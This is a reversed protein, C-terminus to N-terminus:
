TKNGDSERIKLWEFLERSQEPTYFSSFFNISIIMQSRDLFERLLGETVYFCFEGYANTTTFRLREEQERGLKGLLFDSKSKRM